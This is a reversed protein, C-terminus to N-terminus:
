KFKSNIIINLLVQVVTIKSLEHEIKVFYSQFICPKSFHCISNCRTINEKVSANLNSFISSKICEFVGPLFDSM